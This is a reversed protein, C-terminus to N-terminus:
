RAWFDQVLRLMEPQLKNGALIEKGFVFNDSGKFDTVIGGARQVILAGAAVDWPSLNYEFFGDFRGCAVYVLDIAASGMRRFGHTKPMFNKLLEMYRALKEFDFYPFGTAMLSEQLNENTSVQIESDRHLFKYRFRDASATRRTVGNFFSEVDKFKIFKDSSVKLHRLCKKQM